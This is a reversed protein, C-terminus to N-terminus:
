ARGKRRGVWKGALHAMRRPDLRARLLSRHAGQHTWWEVAVDRPRYRPVDLYMGFGEHERRSRRFCDGLSDRSHDHEVAIAPDLVCVYGERLAWLSWERDETGPMDERFPRRRWLEARFGGAGNSYGWYPNRELM